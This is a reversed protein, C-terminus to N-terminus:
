RDAQHHYCEIQNLCRDLIQRAIASRSCEAYLLPSNDLPEIRQTTECTRFTIGYTELSNESAEAIVIVAKM